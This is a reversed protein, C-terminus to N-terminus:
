IYRARELVNHKYSNHTYTFVFIDIYLCIYKHIMHIYYKQACACRGVYMGLMYVYSCVFMGEYMYVYMHMHIYIIHIYMIQGFLLAINQM